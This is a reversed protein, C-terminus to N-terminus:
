GPRGEMERITQWKDPFHKWLQRLPPLPQKPCWFCGLRPFFDYLENYLGRDKLGQLCMAETIGWEILPFHFRNKKGKAYEQSQSRKVEKPDAAYGIYVDNGRGAAAELPDVKLWSRYRCASGITKPFGRIEDMHEGSSPYGYFMNRATHTPSRVTEIKIGTYDEVRKLYPYIYEFEAMEGVDAFLM